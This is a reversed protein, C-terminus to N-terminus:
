LTIDRNLVMALFQARMQPTLTRRNEWQTAGEPQDFSVVIGWLPAASTPLMAFRVDGIMISADARAAGEPYVALLGDSYRYMRELDGRLRSDEPLHQWNTPHLLETREGPYVRTTRGVRVADVQAVGDEVALVRWLVLNGLTPKVMLREPSQGRQAALQEAVSLARQHQVLGFALYVCAVGMGVYAWRQRRTGFVLVLAILVVATFLPDMVAIINASTPNSRFPWFLHIGYSTSFDLLLHSVYAALAALYVRGVAMSKCVRVSKCLFPWCLLAALAAGVPAFLLSHTFHRHMSLALLPDEASRILTDVDPLLGAVVGIGIAARRQGPKCVVQAVLAGMLGHTVIDM